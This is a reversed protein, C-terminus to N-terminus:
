EPSMSFDMPLKPDVVSHGPAYVNNTMKFKPDLYRAYTGYAQDTGRAYNGINTDSVNHQRMFNIANNNAIRETALTANPERAFVGWPNKQHGRVIQLMRPDEVHHMAHGAEHFFTNRPSYPVVSVPREPELANNQINPKKGTNPLKNMPKRSFMSGIPKQSFMSGAQGAAGYENMASNVPFPEHHAKPLKKARPLYIGNAEPSYFPGSQGVNKALQNYTIGPINENKALTNIPALSNKSFNAATRHVGVGMGRLQRLLAKTASMTNAKKLMEGGARKARINAWLGPKEAEKL